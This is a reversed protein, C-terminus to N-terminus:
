SIIMGAMSDLLSLSSFPLGSKCVLDNKWEQEINKSACWVRLVRLSRNCRPNDVYSNKLLFASHLHSSAGMGSRSLNRIVKRIDTWTTAISM